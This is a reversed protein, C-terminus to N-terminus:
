PENQVFDFQHNLILTLLLLVSIQPGQVLKYNMDPQASYVSM